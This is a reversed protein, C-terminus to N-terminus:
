EQFLEALTLPLPVESGCSECQKTVESLQPGPNRDSIAKLIDRRDKISLQRVQEADVIPNGNISKVCSKLVLTDLEAATKNNSNVLAKQTIGTPLEVEFEGAKGSLIFSRSGELKKVKVDDNLNVTIKQSVECKPCIVGEFTIEDGFTVRRITLLLLERDGALLMDLYEKVSDTSGIRVVARELITLLAKGTDTAKAIAEEDAGNLERVEASTIHGEFPDMLGAALTVSTDPPTAIKTKIPAVEVQSLAEEVLQNALNPNEVANVKTTTM